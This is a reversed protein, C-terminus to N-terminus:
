RLSDPSHAINQKSTDTGFKDILVTDGKKLYLTDGNGNVISASNTSSDKYITIISEPDTIGSESEKSNEFIFSTVFGGIVLTHILLTGLQKDKTFLGAITIILWILGGLLVLLGVLHYFNLGHAYPIGSLKYVLWTIFFGILYYLTSNLIQRIFPRKL